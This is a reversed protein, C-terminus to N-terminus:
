EILEPRLNKRFFADVRQWADRVVFGRDFYHFEGPYVMFTVLDGKGAELLHDVLLVSHIFPVNVDATGHLILLPHRIQDVHSMPAAKAYVEPHEDPTGIRSTTWGGHYPDDYYLKYDAVGAVDVAARFWTPEQTIALLTFFGGYSLGWVGIRAPDVYGLSELYKAALRADKADKGGVDMYVDNRWERGYGISGRYDPAIVVYGQQLLYQHFEYYVAENRDPHWGDYNQNVGDPHIWVIAAHKKTRDFHKPVFLWAPVPKGDPGPYHILTPAVLQLKDISAPMSSTLRTVRANAVAEAVYVDASNQHDTHQFALRKDDPSWQPATNTGAGSTVTVVTASAPDSGITAIQIERTGPKDATNADWAIRKSDHSWVARWHEGPTKTIQVPTGGATPVVYIQDWGTVDSTYLLWRRDPSIANTTTNVSSFFKEATDVHLIMPSGGAADVSETTRTLGGNSVRTSLSHTADIWGNGGRGFGGFGGAGRGALRQPTGGNAPVTYTTGGRGGRAFETAVFILKPGVEPPSAYHQIPEAPQAGVTYVLDEGDRSWSPAGLTSDAHAITQDTNTAITHVILDGGNVGGTVFAVRAGDPSLSFGRGHAASAWATRPTGGSVAVALLGGDRQFFFTQGDNSWFAGNGSQGDAYTTLPRAPGSGDAPAVWVNNVGASDYTFWVHSGDPTWQVGSPHKIQILQDITLTPRARAVDRKATQAAATGAFLPIAAVAAVSLLRRTHM